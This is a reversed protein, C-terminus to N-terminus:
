LSPRDERWVGLREAIAMFRPTSRALTSFGKGSVQGAEVREKTADQGADFNALAIRLLEADGSLEYAYILGLLQRLDTTRGRDRDALSPTYYFGKDKEVWGEACITRATKVLWDAVQPDRTIAHYFAMGEMLVGVMFIKNGLLENGSEDLGWSDLWIGRTPHAREMVQDVVRKAGELYRPDGIAQYVSCLAIVPWAYSRPSGRRNPDLSRRVLFEGIERAVEMARMDGTLLYCDCLGEAWIHDIVEKHTLDGGYRYTTHAWEHKYQTGFARPNDTCFHVTDIDAQHRAARRGWDLYDIKGTRAFMMFCCHPTDYEQNLWYDRRSSYDGSTDGYDVAGYMREADVGEMLGAFSSRLLEEYRPFDRTNVPSLWGMAGSGCYAQPEACAFLPHRFAECAAVAADGQGPASFSLLIDDTYDMGQPMVFHDALEPHLSVTLGGPELAFGKPHKQWLDAISACVGGDPGEVRAWGSSKERRDIARGRSDIVVCEFERWPRLNTPGTQLVTLRDSETLDFRQSSAEALVASGDIPVVVELSRLVEREQQQRNNLTFTLKVSRGGACCLVRLTYDLTNKISTKGRCVMAGDIRFVAHVTGLEECTVDYRCGEASASYARYDFDLAKLEIGEISVRHWQGDNGRVQTRRLVGFATKGVSFRLAGTDVAFGEDTETVRLGGEPAPGTSGACTLEYEATESAGPSALFNVLLWRISGDDWLALPQSDVPVGGEPGTLRVDGASRLEGRPFPVGSRVLENARAIGIREEAGM